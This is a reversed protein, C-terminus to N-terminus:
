MLQSIADKILKTVKTFKFFFFFVQYIFTKANKSLRLFCRFIKWVFCEIFSLDHNGNDVIFDSIKKLKKNRGYSDKEKEESKMIKSIM